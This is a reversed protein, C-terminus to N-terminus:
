SSITNLDYYNLNLAIKNDSSTLNAYYLYSDNSKKDEKNFKSLNYFCLSYEIKLYDLNNNIYIVRSEM